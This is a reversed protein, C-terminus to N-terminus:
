AVSGNCSANTALSALLKVMEHTEASKDFFYDAGLEKAEERYAASSYNTHMIRVPKSGRQRSLAKLVDFGTGIRLAIDLIVVEPRLMSIEDVARAADDSHGVVSSGVDTILSELLRLVIPSDEVIYVRLSHHTAM